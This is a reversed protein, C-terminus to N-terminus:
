QDGPIINLIGLWGGGNKIRCVVEPLKNIIRFVFKGLHIIGNKSSNHIGGPIAADLQKVVAYEQSKGLLDVFVVEFDPLPM